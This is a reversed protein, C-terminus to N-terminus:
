AKRRWEVFYGLLLSLLGSVGTWEIVTQKAVPSGPVVYDILVFVLVLLGVERLDEGVKEVIREGARQQEHAIRTKM